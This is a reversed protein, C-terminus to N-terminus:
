GYLLRILFDQEPRTARLLLDKLLSARGRGSGGGRVSAIRDFTRDVDQLTLSPEDAPATAAAARIAAGGLGIRGQRLGGSLFTVAIEIEDPALRTLLAAIQATKDLRGSAAQVATSTTVLDALHM